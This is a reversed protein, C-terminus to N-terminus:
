CFFELRSKFKLRQSTKLALKNVMGRIRVQTERKTQVDYHEARKVLSYSTQELGPGSSLKERLVDIRV